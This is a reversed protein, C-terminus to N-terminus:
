KGTRTSATSAGGGVWLIGGIAGDKVVEITKDRM